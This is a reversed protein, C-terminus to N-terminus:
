GCNMCVAYLYEHVVLDDLADDIASAYISNSGDLVERLLCSPSRLADFIVADFDKGDNLLM